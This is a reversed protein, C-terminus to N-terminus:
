KDAFGGTEPSGFGEAGKEERNTLGMSPDEGGAEPMAPPEPPPTNGLDLGSYYSKPDNAVSKRIEDSGVVGAQAYVDHTAAKQQQVAAEAAEDLEWLNVFEFTINPDVEGWKNLQIFDICTTLPDRYLHEQYAKITDYFVRIEGESSANLGSPTIGLLKVLPIRSVASMHEQTQAQLHDLGGLPASVNNFDEDDKSIMMLNNNDRVNNFLQARRFLEDGGMSLSSGLNTKLLFVSFARVIDAVSQRTRLWNDVYPKAMQSLSIGGFAYAPKLLDPVERGVLTLLRTRHIEKGVVLWTQPRYWDPKLPDVSNYRTPYCWMAEVTRFGNLDGKGVKSKSTKDRGNGLSTLMENREDSDGVDVFLHSRGFFGDKEALQYFAEKLRFRKVEEALEKIKDDLSKDTGTGKFEIWKRTMESATVESIVRYEARQTLEALYSYGLFALGERYINAPSNAWGYNAGIAEDQAIARAGGVKPLVSPPFFADPPRYPSIQAPKRRSAQLVSDTIKEAITKPPLNVVVAAPKAPEPSPRPTPGGSSTGSTIRERRSKM